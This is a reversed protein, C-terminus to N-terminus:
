DSLRENDKGKKFLKLLDENTKQGVYSIACRDFDFIKTIAEEIDATTIKELARQCKRFTIVKDLQIISRGAIRMCDAASEEGMILSTMFQAVAKQHEKPCFGKEKVCLIVERIALVAEEVQKPSTAFGIDFFGNSYYHTPSAGIEYVLGMEERIKQFLRSSMGGGLMYGIVFPAYDRKHRLNYSPFRICVNAQEYPKITYIEKSYTKYKKIVNTEFPKDVFNKEFYREVLAFVEEKKLNGVISIVMNKPAYWKEMFDVIDQRTFSKVNDISGLIPRSYPATGYFIKNMKEYCLDEGDDEYMNIEEIIVGKEKKINDETYTSNQLIDALMEVCNETYKAMGTTYYCTYSKSTFANIQIGKNDMENAVEFASRSTTGKFNLHEIFHALGSNKDTEHASGVGVFVGVAISKTFPKREFYLRLGSPFTHYNPM